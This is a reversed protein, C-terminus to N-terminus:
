LYWSYRRYFDLTQDIGDAFAVQPTWNLLRHAKAYDGSFGGIDIRALEEPWPICSITSGQSARSVVIEAIELLSLVETHGVNFVEGANISGTAVQQAAKGLADVVDSVYLCDRQQVGDGFVEIPEGRLARAIFVPLFGLGPKQLSQGPGFVNSLRVSVTRVGHVTGYLRHYNEGALKNVGNIDRPVTPHLEDVPLYQPTGYVQRTSTHVVVASSRNQRISELFKLQSTVNIDLDRLPDIMSEHHSVQGAINFIFDVDTLIKRTVEQDAINGIVVDISGLKPDINREDGGHQDVLADLVRVHAGATALSNAMNSGIFGLGGTVLCTTGAFSNLSGM